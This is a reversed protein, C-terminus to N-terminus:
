NSVTQDTLRLAVPLPGSRLLMALRHAQELTARGTLEMSGRVGALPTRLIPCNVVEGDVLLCLYYGRKRATHSALRDEGEPTLAFEIVPQGDRLYAAAAAFHGATLVSKYVGLEPRPVPGSKVRRGVPLFETGGEVVEVLGIHAAESVLWSAPVGPPVTAIVLHDAERRHVTWGLQAEVQPYWAHLREQLVSGARVLEGPAAYGAAEFTLTTPMVGDVWTASETTAAYLFVLALVLGCGVRLTLGRKVLQTQTPGDRERRTTHWDYANYM